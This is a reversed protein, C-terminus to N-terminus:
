KTTETIARGGDRDPALRTSLEFPSLTPRRDFNRGHGRLLLAAQSARGPGGYLEHQRAALVAARDPWATPRGRGAALADLVRFQEAVKLPAHHPLMNGASGIRMVTTIAALAGILVEPASGTVGDSNHHESIWYRHYGLKECARSLTLSDRIAADPSQGAAIGSQDLVSIRMPEEAM